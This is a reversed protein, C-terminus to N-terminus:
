SGDKIPWAVFPHRDGGLRTGCGQCQSWSFHGECGEPCDNTLRYGAWREAMKAAHRTNPNEDQDDGPWNYLHMGDEHRRLVWPVNGLDGVDGNADLMLCSVCWEGEIPERDATM